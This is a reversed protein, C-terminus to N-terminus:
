LQFILRRQCRALTLIAGGVIVVLTLSAVGATFLAPPTGYLVPTRILDLLASLPNYDALWAMGGAELIKRPYLIPTVYFLIQFGVECLHQTDQFYVNACGSLVAAAWAFLFLLLVGPILWGLALLRQPWTPPAAEGSEASAAPRAASASAAPRPPAGSNPRLWRVGWVLVVVVSLAILYHILAGLATRLPYIALPAPYQRIYPEGMFFSHCGQQTSSVIYNWTALGCLLFPAYEAVGNAPKMLRQFVMCLIFTMAIPHLLSWGMGLVSRRYRTRLDMKVLSLWFYRCRWISQMYGIM